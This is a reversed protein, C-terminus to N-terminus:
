YRCNPIIHHYIFPWDLYVEAFRVYFNPSNAKAFAVLEEFSENIKPNWNLAIKKDLYKVMEGRWIGGINLGDVLQNSISIILDNINILKYM